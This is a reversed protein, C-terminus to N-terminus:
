FNVNIGVFQGKIPLTAEGSTINARRSYDFVGGTVGFLSLDITAGIERRQRHILPNLQDKPTDAQWLGHVAFWSTLYLMSEVEWYTGQISQAESGGAPRVKEAITGYKVMLSSDQIHSGLLRMNVAQRQAEYDYLADTAFGPALTTRPFFKATGKVPQSHDMTLEYGIDINLLKARLTSTILNTLFLQGKLRRNIHQHGVTVATGSADVMHDTRNLGYCLKLEPRFKAKSPSSYMALWVDMEKIRKKIKLWELITFRTSKREKQTGYYYHHVVTKDAALAQWPLLTVGVLAVVGMLAIRSISKQLAGLAQRHAM